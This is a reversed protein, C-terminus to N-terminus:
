GSLQSLFASAFCCRMWEPLNVAFVLRECAQQKAQVAAADADDAVDTAALEFYPMVQNLISVKSVVFRLLVIM